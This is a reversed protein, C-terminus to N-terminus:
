KAGCTQYTLTPKGRTAPIGSKTPANIICDNVQEETGQCDVPPIIFVDASADRRPSQVVVEPLNPGDIGPVDPGADEKVHGPPRTAIGSNRLGCGQLVGLTIIACMVVRLDIWTRAM